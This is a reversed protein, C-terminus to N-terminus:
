EFRPVMAVQNLTGAERDLRPNVQGFAEADAAFEVHRNFVATRRDAATRGLLRNDREQAPERRLAGRTNGDATSAIPREKRRLTLDDPGASLDELSRRIREPKGDWRLADSGPALEAGPVEDLSAQHRHLDLVAVGHLRLATASPAFGVSSSFSHAKTHPGSYPRLFGATTRVTPNQEEDSSQGV